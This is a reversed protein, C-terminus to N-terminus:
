SKLEPKRRELQAYVQELREVLVPWDYSLEVRRRGADAFTQRIDPNDILRIVNEAFVEPTDAVLLETGIEAELGM